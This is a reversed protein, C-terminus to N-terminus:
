TMDNKTQTPASEQPLTGNRQSRMQAIEQKLQENEKVLQDSSDRTFQDNSKRLQENEKVLQDSSDKTFQDNSKRLQTNENRQRNQENGRNSYMGFLIGIIGLVIEGLNLYIFDNSLEPIYDTMGLFGLAIFALGLIFCVVRTMTIVEGFGHRDSDHCESWPANMGMVM